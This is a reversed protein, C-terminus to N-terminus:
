GGRGGRGGLGNRDQGTEPVLALLREVGASARRRAGNELLRGLLILTVIMAATDFYVEGAVLMGYVSYGYAALVGLAVLLDMDPALNCLSRWGGRIFPWGSYFVVPTAVVAALVQLLQRYSEEMGQFYGAYLALSYSKLQLTLFVATGFRFLLARQERGLREGQRTRSPLAPRYGLRSVEAFIAAPEIRAPAFVVQLQHTAYNCRAQQVGERRTLIKEILWICAACRIGEVQILLEDGEPRHRVQRALLQPDFETRFAGALPGKERWERRRYFDDLGAGTIIRYVGLCGACCFQRPRGGVAPDPPLTADSVLEGPGIVGQCHDCLPPGAAPAASSEPATV